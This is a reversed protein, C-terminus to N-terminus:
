SYLSFLCPGDPFIIVWVTDQNFDLLYKPVSYLLGHAIWHFIWAQCAYLELKLDQYTMKHQKDMVMMMSSRLVMKFIMNLNLQSTDLSSQLSWNPCVINECMNSLYTTASLEPRIYNTSINHKLMASQKMLKLLEAMVKHIFDNWTPCRQALIKWTSICGWPTLNLTVKLTDKFYTKQGRLLCRGASHERFLLQKYIHEDLMCTVHGAWQTQARM